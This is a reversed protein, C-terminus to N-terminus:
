SPPCTGKELCLTFFDRITKRAGTGMKKIMEYSIMSIGSAKGNSLDKLTSNLEEEIILKLLSNYQEEKINPKPQYEKKWEKNLLDFNSNRKEFSRNYHKETEKLIEQLDVSIYPDQQDKVLIRDIIITNKRQSILLNIIRKQNM